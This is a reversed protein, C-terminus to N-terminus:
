RMSWTMVAIHIGLPSYREPYTPDDAWEWSDGTDNNVWIAVQLRKREGYIAALASDCRRELLSHGLRAVMARFDPLSPRPLLRHFAPDDDPAEVIPCKPLVREATQAVTATSVTKGFIMRSSFAAAIWTNACCLSGKSPPIRVLSSRENQSTSFIPPTDYNREVGNRV